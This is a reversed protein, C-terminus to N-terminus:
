EKVQGYARNTNHISGNLARTVSAGRDRSYAASFCCCFSRSIKWSKAVQRNKRLCPPLKFMITRLLAYVVLISIISIIPSSTFLPNTIHFHTPVHCSVVCCTVECRFSFFTFLLLHYVSLLYAIAAHFDVCARVTEGPHYKSPLRFCCGLSSSARDNRLSDASLRVAFRFKSM